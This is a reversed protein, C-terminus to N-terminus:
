DVLMKELMDDCACKMHYILVHNHEFDIEGKINFCSSLKTSQFPVETKTNNPFLKNVREHMLIM